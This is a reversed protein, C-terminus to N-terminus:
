DQLIPNDPFHRIIDIARRLRHEYDFYNKSCNLYDPAEPYAIIRELIEIKAACMAERIVAADRSTKGTLRHMRYAIWPRNYLGYGRITLSVFVTKGVLKEVDKYNRIPNHGIFSHETRLTDYARVGKTIANEHLFVEDSSEGVRM